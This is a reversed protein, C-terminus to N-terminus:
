SRPLVVGAALGRGQPGSDLVLRAGLLEAYRQVIALGLGVGQGLWEGEPGQAWRRQLGSRREASIGQGNDLVSLHLAEPQVSVAVTITAPTGDAPRGYRLANDILNTLIGELLAPQGQVVLPDDIGRAGLDVGAADARPLFRLVTDRVLEDLQVPQLQMSRGEDARAMALLQEVLHSAREESQAIRELQVRWVAPDKQALGYEALARIGALPTRLEHAVNGAFERQMRVGENVRAFLGNVAEGLRQVERMSANAPVPTLDRVDRREVAHQLAALPRVDRDIARRLWFALGALLLLQPLVSLVLVNRLLAQRSHTTEAMVVDFAQPVARRVVVARLARGQYHIDSFRYGVDEAPGPAYLGSHGAILNGDPGRVAFYVSETQDYLVASVERPTLMLELGGAVPRVSTAVSYADDLLARDFTRQTFVSAVVVSVIGGVVWAGALPWLVHQLV